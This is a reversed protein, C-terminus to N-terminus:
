ESLLKDLNDRILKERIASTIFKTASEGTDAVHKDIEAKLEPPIRLTIRAFKSNWKKSARTQANTTKRSKATPVSVDPLQIVPM